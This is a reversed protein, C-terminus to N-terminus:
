DKVDKSQSGLRSISLRLNLKGLILIHKRTQCTQPRVKVALTTTHTHTSRPFCLQFRILTKNLVAYAVEFFVKLHNISLHRHLALISTLHHTYSKHTIRIHPLTRQHIRKRLTFYKCLVLEKSGKIRRHALHNHM